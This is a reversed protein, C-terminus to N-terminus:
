LEPHFYPCPESNMPRLQLTPEAFCKGKCLGPNLEQWECPKCSGLGLSETLRKGGRLAAPM